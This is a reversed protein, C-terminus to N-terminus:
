EVREATLWDAGEIELYEMRAIKGDEKAVFRVRSPRSEVFFETESLPRLPAPRGHVIVFLLSGGRVVRVDM